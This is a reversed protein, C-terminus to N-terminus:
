DSICLFFLEKGFIFEVVLFGGFEVWWCEKVLDVGCFVLWYSDECFLLDM